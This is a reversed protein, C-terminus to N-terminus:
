RADGVLAEAVLERCRQAVPSLRRNRLALLSYPAVVIRERLPLPVIGTGAGAGKLLEAVERSVPSVAHSTALMAITVLISSTNTVRAPLRAGRALLADEIAMRIPTGSRQMVWDFDLLDVLGVEAAGSAPHGPGVVMDIVERRARVVEFAKANAEPPIRALVFDLRLALLDHILGRSTGVEVHVEADPAAARLRQVVPVVYGIAGGTVAGIRVMGGQGASYRAVEVAAEGVEELVNRARRALLEGLPTLTMGRVRREFIADGCLREIEGLSRSAAPQTLALAQAALSLQQHEAIAAILRLHKLTLRQALPGSM